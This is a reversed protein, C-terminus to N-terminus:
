GEREPETWGDRKLGRGQVIEEHKRSLPRALRILVRTIRAGDVEEVFFLSGDAAAMQGIRPEVGLQDYRYRHHESCICNCRGFAYLPLSDTKSEYLFKTSQNNITYFM